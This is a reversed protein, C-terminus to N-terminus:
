EARAQRIVRDAAGPHRRLRSARSARDAPLAEAPPAPESEEHPQGSSTSLTAPTPSCRSTAATSTTSPPVWGSPRSDGWSPISPRDNDAVICWSPKTKWAVGPANHNFLDADPAYHTAWVLEQEEESLDGCFYAAGSPLMWVRGDAVEIHSFVPAVAGLEIVRGPEVAARGVRFSLEAAMSVCEDLLRMKGLGASGEVVIVGGTGARVQSLKRRIVALEQQRGRLPPRSPADM